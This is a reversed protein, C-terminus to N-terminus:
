EFLRRQRRATTLLRQEKLINYIQTETLGFRRALEPVNRGSFEQWILNDRLALRLRTDRPLYVRQGGFHHAILLILAQAEARAATLSAGRRALHETVVDVLEALTGPWRAEDIAEDAAPERALLEAMDAALPDLALEAQGAPKSM